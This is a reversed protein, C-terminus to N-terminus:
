SLVFLCCGRVVFVVVIFVIVAFLVFCFVFGVGWFFLFFVFLCGLYVRLVLLLVFCAFVGGGGGVVFLNLGTM